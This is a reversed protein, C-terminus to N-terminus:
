PRVGVFFGHSIKGAHGSEVWLELAGITRDIQESPVAGQLADRGDRLQSLVSQYTPAVNEPWDEAAEVRFGAAELGERYDPFDWMGPTRVREYLATREEAPVDRRMLLDSLALRGGPRLVRFCEALVKPKDAAHLLAEQSWVVDFREDPTPLAHFDGYEVTIRDDMGADRNRERNLDNEKESINVCHVSCGYEGVLFRAAAGYGAGVDLVSSGEDIGARDAMIRNTRAMATDITDDDREWTGMHVNDRWLRRYIEDAPGDYYAQTEEVVSAIDARNEM